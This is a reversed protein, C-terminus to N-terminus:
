DATKCYPLTTAVAEHFETCSTVGDPQVGSFEYSYTLEAESTTDGPCSVSVNLSM